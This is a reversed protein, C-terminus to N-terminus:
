ITYAVGASIQGASYATGGNPTISQMTYEVLVAGQKSWAMATGVTLDIQSSVAAGGSSNSRYGLGAYPCFPAMIKSVGVGVKIQNGNTTATGLASTADQALTKYGAGVSVSVPMTASEGMVAYKLNLGYGTTKVATPIGPGVPLSGVTAQGAEVFVDLKDTIGYGGYAGITAQTLGTLGGAQLGFDSFYGVLGAWKGQGIPNATILMEASAAAVFMLAILSCLVLRKM